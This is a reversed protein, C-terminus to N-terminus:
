YKICALLAVNRPRTEAGGASGTATTAGIGNGGAQYTIWTGNAFQNATHNHSKLDDLQASGFARGADVGRSDDWGRAFEGRLDPVRFTGAAEGGTNYTSGIVGWLAAYATNSVAAGNCKIWGDPPTSAAFFQVSGTAATGNVGISSVAVWQSSNADTYFIHLRGNTSNFWLDGDRPGSPLTDSISVSSPMIWPNITWAKGDWTYVTGGPVQFVQGVFTPTPFDLM